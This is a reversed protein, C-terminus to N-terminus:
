LTRLAEDFPTAETELNWIWLEAREPLGQRKTCFLYLNQSDDVGGADKLADELLKLRNSGDLKKYRNEAKKPYGKNELESFFFQALVLYPVNKRFFMMEDRYQRQLFAKTAMLYRRGEQSLTRGGGPRNFYANNSSPPLEPLSIRIM